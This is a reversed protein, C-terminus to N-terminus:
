IDTAESVKAQIYKGGSWPVWESIKESYFNDDFKFDHVPKIIFRPLNNAFNLVPVVVMGKFNLDQLTKIIEDKKTLVTILIIKEISDDYADIIQPNNIPLYRLTLGHRSKSSDIIEVNEKTYKSM